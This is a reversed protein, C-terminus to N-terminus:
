HRPDVNNRDDTAAGTKSDVPNNDDSSKAAIPEGM